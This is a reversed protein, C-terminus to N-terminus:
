AAPSRLPPAAAATVAARTVVVAEAYVMTAAAVILPMDSDKRDCPAPDFHCLAGWPHGDDGPIVAGCYSAVPSDAMWPTREDTHGNEVELLEGTRHLHACYAAALPVDEGQAVEPDWKDVLMVNRLMDGDFRFIGTFRHPTRRNLFLLADRLGGEDLVQRFSQLDAALPPPVSVADMENM